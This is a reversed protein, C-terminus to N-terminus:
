ETYKGESQSNNGRRRRHRTHHTPGCAHLGMEYMLEINDFQFSPIIFAPFGLCILAEWPCMHQADDYEICMIEMKESLQHTPLLVEHM